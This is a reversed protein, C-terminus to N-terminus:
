PVTGVREATYGFIEEYGDASLLVPYFPEEATLEEGDARAFAQGAEVRTFNEVLVEYEEADPKPIVESLRFLPIPEPDTEARRGAETEAEDLADMATLFERTLQHANEVADTSGQLGCEVEIVGGSAFLRGQVNHTADIAAVVSLQPLVRQDLDDVGTVAAFPEPHSQTSHLSLTTCGELEAAVEAALRAEHTPGEPDGPFSRNLDAEVYRVGRALAEENALVCKVPRSVPPQQEILREVARAGCPEDGHIAGVIAIEPTGEGLHEVRM